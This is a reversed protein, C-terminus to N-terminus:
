RESTPTRVVTQPPDCQRPLIFPRLGRTAVLDVLLGFRHVDCDDGGASCTHKAARAHVVVRPSARQHRGPSLDREDRGVRRDSDIFVVDAARSDEEAADVNVEGRLPPKPVRQRTKQFAPEITGCDNAPRSAFRDTVVRRLEALQREVHEGAFGARLALLDFFERSIEALLKPGVDNDEAVRQESSRDTSDLLDEGARHEAHQLPVVDKKIGKGVRMAHSNEVCKAVAGAVEIAEDCVAAVVGLVHRCFEGHRQVAEM